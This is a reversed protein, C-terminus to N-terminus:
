DLEAAKEVPNVGALADDWRVDRANWKVDAEGRLREYVVVKEITPCQAVAEDVIDKLVLPKGRRWGGDATVVLKAKADNIRDRLADASFGGFVVSHTAGVRACALMAIALEPIMPMYLAVRDGARVGLKVLAGAFRCVEAHLQEYTLARKDGPEGEWLLATKTRRPGTLHRDLCNHSLNTRGGVFWKAFPPNWELVRDWKRFWHLDAAVGSWFGERDARARECIRDYEARSKIHAREAFAPPPEFLRTEQLLSEIKKEAM